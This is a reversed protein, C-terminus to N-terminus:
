VPTLASSNMPPNDISPSCVAEFARRLETLKLSRGSYEDFIIGKISGGGHDWFIVGRHDAPYNNNCFRLFSEVTAGDSMESRPLVELLKLGDSGYVYRSNADAAIGPTQWNKTGGTEIVVTINEPLNVELLESLDDSAKGGTVNGEDEGGTLGTELAGGCIYWYIAWTDNPDYKEGFESGLANKYVKLPATKDACSYLMLTVCLTLALLLGTFSKRMM